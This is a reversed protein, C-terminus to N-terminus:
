WDDGVLEHEERDWGLEECPHDGEFYDDPDDAPEGSRYDHSM